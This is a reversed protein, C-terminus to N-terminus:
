EKESWSGEYESGKNWIGLSNNQSYSSNAGKEGLGIRDLYSGPVLSGVISEKNDCDSFNTARENSIILTKALKQAENSNEEYFDLSIEMKKPFEKEMDDIKGILGGAEQLFNFSRAYHLFKELLPEHSISRTEECYNLLKCITKVGLKKVVLSIAQSHRSLFDETLDQSLYSELFELEQSRTITTVPGYFILYGELEENQKLVEILISRPDEERFLNFKNPIIIIFNKSFRKNLEFFDHFVIALESIDCYKPLLIALSEINRLWNELNERRLDKLLSFDKHDFFNIFLADASLHPM